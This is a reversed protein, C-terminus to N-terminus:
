VGLLYAGASFAANAGDACATIIQRLHKQRCDGAAFVGPINTVCDEGALIYGEDMEIQGDLIGTDPTLGIAIFVGDLEIERLPPTTGGTTSMVDSRCTVKIGEVAAEGYIENVQAGLVLEIKENQRCADALVADGRFEERRHILYVKECLNALYLADELATNGGGVVAVTKGKFFAGDCTACYSVGRGTLREEGPCGLLRRKAGGAFIVARAETEGSPTVIKKTKGSLELRTIEEFRVDAGQEAAQEFMKMALDAGGIKGTGPYNEVDAASTLQGGPVSKEFVVVSHGARRAYIAATLGAAGAGTVCIDTM